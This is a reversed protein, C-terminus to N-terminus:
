VYMYIVIYIYSKSNEHFFACFLKQYRDTLDLTLLVLLSTFHIKEKLEKATFLFLNDLILNKTDNFFAIM